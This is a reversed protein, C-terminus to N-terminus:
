VEEIRKIGDRNLVIRLSNFSIKNKDSINKIVINIHYVRSAIVKMYDNKKPIFVDVQPNDMRRLFHTVNFRTIDNIGDIQFDPFTEMFRESILRIDKRYLMIEEDHLDEDAKSTFDRARASRVQKPVEDERIFSFSERLIGIRHGHNTYIEIKKDAFFKRVLNSFYIKLIDKMRDKFIYVLVLAIFVMLTFDGIKNKSILTVGTMLTAALGAVFALILQEAFAGDAKTKRNLYLIRGMLKKLTSKRSILVENDNEESPISQYGSEKRHSIEEKARKIIFEMTSTSKKTDSKELIEYLEHRSENLLISIYEDAYSYLDKSKETISAVKITKALKRFKTTLGDLEMLFISINKEIDNCNKNKELFAIEDRLASKLISCFIKIRYEYDASNANNQSHALMEVSKELNNLPSNEDFINKLLVRPTKLRIYSKVDDYFMNRPYSNLDIGLSKPLFIFTEVAYRTRRSKENPEYTFKIEFQFKDHIKVIEDIM